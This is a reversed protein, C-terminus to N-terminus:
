STLHKIKHELLDIRKILIELADVIIGANKNMARMTEDVLKIAKNHNELTNAISDMIEKNM